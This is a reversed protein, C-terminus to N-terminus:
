NSAQRGSYQENRMCAATRAPLQQNEDTLSVSAPVCACVCARGRASVHHVCPGVCCKVCLRQATEGRRVRERDNQKDM